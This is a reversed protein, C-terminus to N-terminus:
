LKQCWFQYMGIFTYPNKSEFEQWKELNFLDDPETNEATFAQMAGRSSLGAEFGCFTMGLEELNKEIQPITFRHEQVHFLLDRLESLSHFDSLSKVRKHHEENSSM